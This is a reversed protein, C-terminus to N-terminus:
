NKDMVLEPFMKTKDFYHLELDPRFAVQRGFRSNKYFEYYWYRAVGIAGPKNESEILYSIMSEPILISAGEVIGIDGFILACHYGSFSSGYPLVMANSKSNKIRRYAMIEIFCQIDGAQLYSISEQGKMGSSIEGGLISYDSEAKMFKSVFDGYSMVERSNNLEFVVDNNRLKGFDIEHLLPKM